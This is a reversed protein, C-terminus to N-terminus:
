ELASLYYPLLSVSKPPNPPQQALKELPEEATHAMDLVLLHISAQESEGERNFEAV